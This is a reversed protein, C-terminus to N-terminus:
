PYFRRCELGHDLSIMVVVKEIILSWEFVELTKVFRLAEVFEGERVEAPLWERRIAIEVTPSAQAGTM